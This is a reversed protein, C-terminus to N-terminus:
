RRPFIDQNELLADYGVPFGLQRRIEDALGVAYGIASPKILFVLAVDQGRQKELYAALRERGAPGAEFGVASDPDGMRGCRIQRGSCELLYVVSATPRDPRLRIWDPASKRITEQLKEVQTRLQPLHEGLRAEEVRVAALSATLEALEAAAEAASQQAQRLEAAGPAASAPEPLVESLGRLRDTLEAQRQELIRIEGSHDRTRPGADAGAPARASVAVKIAILLALLTMVGSVSLVIDQFSFLSVPAEGTVRSAM